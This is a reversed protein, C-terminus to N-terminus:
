EHVREGLGTGAEGYFLYVGDALKPVGEVHQAASLIAGLVVAATGEIDDNFSPCRDKYAACVRFANTNGFDEWQILTQKGWRAQVAVVFEEILADYAAGRERRQKLGCYFPSTLLAENETGVDLCIPLTCSPDVGALATYLGLKGVPIGMGNTGLDGLGLIREGDTIVIARVHQSPWEALRTAVSGADQLSITLGLHPPLLLKDYAICAAGVTPTYVIPLVMETHAAATAFFLEKDSALLGMLFTYQALEDQCRKLHEVVLEVRQSMSLHRSLLPSSGHSATAVTAATPEDM